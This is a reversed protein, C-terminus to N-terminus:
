YPSWDHTAEGLAVLLTVQGLLALGAARRWQGPSPVVWAAAVACDAPWTWPMTRAASLATFCAIGALSGGVNWAYGHLPSTRGLERGMLVGLPVFPLAGPVFGAVLILPLSVQTRGSRLFEWLYFDGSLRVDLEAQGMAFFANASVFITVPFWAAVRERAQMLLGLGLGLFAAILVFNTYYGFVKVQSPVWRILALELLLVLFGVVALRPHAPNRASPGATSERPILASTSRHVVRLCALM